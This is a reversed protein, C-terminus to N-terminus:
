QGVIWSLYMSISRGAKFRYAELVVYILLMIVVCM